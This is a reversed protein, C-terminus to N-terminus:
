EDFDESAHFEDHVRPVFASRQLVNNEHVYHVLRHETASLRVREGNGASANGHKYYARKMVSIRKKAAAAAVDDDAKAKAGHGAVSNNLDDNKKTSSRKDHLDNNCINFAVPVTEVKGRGSRYVQFHLHPGTSFGTNGSLALRDNARVADGVAVAASRHALHAYQSFTGSHPHFITVHNANSGDANCDKQM